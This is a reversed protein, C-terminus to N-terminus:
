RTPRCRRAPRPLAGRPSSSRRTTTAAAGTSRPWARAALRTTRTRTSSTRTSREVAGAEDGTNQAIVALNEAAQNLTPKKRLADQLPRDGRGDQGPARRARGPQLRGRRPQRGGRAAPKFKSSWRRRLRAKRRRRRTTRRSRTKSSCSPRPNIQPQPTRREDAPATPATRAQAVDNGAPTASAGHHGHLRRGRLASPSAALLSRRVADTSPRNM